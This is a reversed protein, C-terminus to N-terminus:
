AMNSSSHFAPAERLFQDRGEPVEPGRRSRGSRWGGVHRSPFGLSDSNRLTGRVVRWRDTLSGKGALGARLGGPIGGWQPAFGLLGWGCALLRPVWAM